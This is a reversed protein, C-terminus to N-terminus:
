SEPLVFFGVNVEVSKGEGWGVGAKWHAGGGRGPGERGGREGWEGGVQGAVGERGKKGHRMGRGEGGIGGGGGENWAGKWGEGMKGVRGKGEDRWATGWVGGGARGGRVHIHATTEREGGGM